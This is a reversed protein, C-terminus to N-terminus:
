GGVLWKGGPIKRILAVIGLSVLYTVPIFLIRWIWDNNGIGLLRKEFMMVIWHILYVGLSCASIGPLRKKLWAPLLRSWPIRSLLIFVACAFFVSHFLAYGKISTDTAGAQESRILTYVFRFLVGAAGLIYLIIREKKEPPKTTFLYGLVVFILMSPGFPIDINWRLQDQWARLAPRLSYFVFCIAVIYWLAKRNNRLSTLVPMALYCSFLSPFFWYVTMNKNNLIADSVTKVTVPELKYEGMRVRLVLFVVSWFFWPFVARLLRKKLFTKTDYRDRYALLNAGSLMMFIPVSWYFFCEVFLSQIWGAGQAYSHVLANQHLAVVSICALINMVDFAPNREKTTKGEQKVTARGRCYAKM